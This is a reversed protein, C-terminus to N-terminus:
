IHILSLGGRVTKEMKGRTLVNLYDVLLMMTFVFVTIMVARTIIGWISSFEFM